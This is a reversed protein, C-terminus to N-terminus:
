LMHKNKFLTDSSDIKTLNSMTKFDYFAYHVKLYKFTHKSIKIVFKM